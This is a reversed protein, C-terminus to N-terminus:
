QMYFRQSGECEKAKEERKERKYTARPPLIRITDSITLLTVWDRIFEDKNGYKTLTSSKECM